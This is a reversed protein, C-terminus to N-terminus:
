EKSIPLEDASFTRLYEQLSFIQLSRQEGSEEPLYNLVLQPHDMALKWCEHGSEQMLRNLVFQAPETPVHFNQNPCWSEKLVLQYAEISPLDKSVNQMTTSTLLSKQLRM